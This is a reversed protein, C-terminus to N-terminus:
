TPAEMSATIRRIIQPGSYDPGFLFGSIRTQDINFSIGNQGPRRNITLGAPLAAEFLDLPHRSQSMTYEIAATLVAHDLQKCVQKAKATGIIDAATEPPPETLPPPIQADLDDVGIVEDALDATLLALDAVFNIWDTDAARGSQETYGRQQLEQWVPTPLDLTITTTPGPATSPAPATPPTPTPFGHDTLDEGIQAPDLQLKARTMAVYSLMLEDRAEAITTPSAGPDTLDQLAGEVTFDRCLTVANWERGKAKHATSVVVDARYEDRECRNLAQLIPTTGFDTVLKVLMTLEADGGVDTVFELVQAWSSFWSLAPHRTKRGNILDEAAEVLRVAEVTGGVLATRLGARQAGIIESITGANTRCLVADFPSATVLHSTRDPNGTLRIPADLVDLCCNAAEAIPQGFRFSQTLSLKTGSLLSGMADVAGRFRYIAQSEDGVFIKQQEQAGVISAIVPNADQAEDFLIYDGRLTPHSLAWLKLYTDHTVRCIGGPDLYDQWMQEAKPLLETAIKTVTTDSLGPVAALHDVAIQDDASQCFGAVMDSVWRLVQFANYHQNVHALTPVTMGSLELRDAQAQLSGSSPNQIKELVPKAAKNGRAWGWALSHGTRAQTTPPFTAKAETAIAKNFAIYLGSSATQGAMMKLTSTKGTGAGATIVLDGGGAFADLIAQQEVTPDM